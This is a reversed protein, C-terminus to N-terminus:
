RAVVMVVPTIVMAVLMITVGVPVVITLVVFRPMVFMAVMPLVVVMM